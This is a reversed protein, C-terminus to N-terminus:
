RLRQFLPLSVIVLLNLSAELTSNVSAKSVITFICDGIFEIISGFSSNVSSSKMSFIMSKMQAQIKVMTEM